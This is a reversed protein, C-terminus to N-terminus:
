SKQGRFPIHYLSNGNERMAFIGCALCPLQLAPSEGWSLQCSEVYDNLCSNSQNERWKRLDMISLDVTRWQQIVALPKWNLSKILYVPILHCTNSYLHGTSRYIAEIQFVCIQSPIGSAHLFLNGPM